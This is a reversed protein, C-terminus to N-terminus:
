SHTSTENVGDYISRDIPLTSLNQSELKGRKNGDRVCVFSAFTYGDVQRRLLAMTDALAAYAQGTAKLRDLRKDVARRAIKIRTLLRDHSDYDTLFSTSGKSSSSSSSGAGGGQQQQRQQQQRQQQQLQQQQQQGEKLSAVAAATEARRRALVGVVEDIAALEASLSGDLAREFGARDMRDLSAAM